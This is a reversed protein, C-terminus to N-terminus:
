AARRMAAIHAAMTLFVLLIASIMLAPPLGNHGTRVGQITFYQLFAFLLLTEAKLAAVMNLAISQLRERNQPTVRVPYNFVSPFFSVLTISLYLFIGVGPLMLLMKPDGWANPQGDLGFHTPIPGTLRSPGYLVSYTIWLLAALAILSIAELLKRM